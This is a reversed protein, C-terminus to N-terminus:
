RTPRREHGPRDADVQVDRPRPAAPARCSRGRRRPATAPGTRRRGAASTPAAPAAGSTPRSSTTRARPDTWSAGAARAREQHALQVTVPRRGPRWPGPSASRPSATPRPSPSPSRRSAPPRTVPPPSARRAPSAHDAPAAGAPPPTPVAADPGADVVAGDTTVVAADEPQDVSGLDVADISPAVPKADPCRPPTSRGVCRPGPCVPCVALMGASPLVFIAGTFPPTSLPLRTM